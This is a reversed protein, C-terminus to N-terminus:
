CVGNFWIAVTLKAATVAGWDSGSTITAVPSVATVHIATGSVAGADVMEATTFVSPTGTTYRDVDTGDGIQITASTDGAFGTIERLDTRSVEAGVPIDGAFTVTGVAAGGDTFDALAFTEALCGSLLVWDEDEGNAQLKMYEHVFGAGNRIYKSGIPMASWPTSDGDVADAGYKIEPQDAVASEYYADTNSIRM